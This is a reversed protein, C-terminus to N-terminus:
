GSKINKKSLSSWRKVFNHTKAHADSRVSQGRGYGGQGSTRMWDCSYDQKDFEPGQSSIYKKSLSSWRKVFNHTKAHADTRASQGRGYVGQGSTRMRDRSCDQKDFEPGQSSIKKQFARGASSLIIRKPMLTAAYLSAAVMVARGAQGCGIAHTTKNTSSPDRVQYINKQSARGASSLIIRKPMLTPAHLSAAVM